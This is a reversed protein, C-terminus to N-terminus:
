NSFTGVKYLYFGIFGIGGLYYIALGSWYQKPDKARSGVYGFRGPLKGICTGVVAIALMLIGFFLLIDNRDRV